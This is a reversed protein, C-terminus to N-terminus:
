HGVARRKLLGIGGVVALGMLMLAVPPPEPIPALSFGSITATAFGGTCDTCNLLWGFSSSAVFSASGTQAIAGGPDSLAIRQGDVLVGFIDGAPGDADASVYSWDFSYTGAVALTVQLQCPSALVGYVGGTCGVVPSAAETDSGVLVLQIPSFTATGFSSLPGSLTGVNTVAFQAPAAPGTFGDAAAASCFPGTLAAALLAPLTPIPKM